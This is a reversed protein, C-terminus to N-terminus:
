NNSPLFWIAGEPDHAYVFDFM